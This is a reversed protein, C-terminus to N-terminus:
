FLIPIEKEKENRPCLFCPSLTGRIYSLVQTNIHTLLCMADRVFVCVQNSRQTCLLQVSTRSANNWAKCRSYRSLYLTPWTGTAAWNALFNMSVELFFFFTMKIHYRKNQSCHPRQNYVQCTMKLRGSSSRNSPESTWNTKEFKFNKSRDHTNETHRNDSTRTKTWVRFKSCCKDNNMYETKDTNLSFLSVLYSCINRINLCFFVVSLITFYFTISHHAVLSIKICNNLSILPLKTSFIPIIIIIYQIHLAINPNFNYCASGGFKCGKTDNM